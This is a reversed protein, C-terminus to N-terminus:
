PEVKEAVILFGSPITGAAITERVRYAGPVPADPALVPTESRGSVANRLKLVGRKVTVGGPLLGLLNFALFLAAKRPLQYYMRCRPFWRGVENLFEEGEFEHVHFPNTPVAGWRSHLLKNPTSCLFRGGPRLVRRCEALYARYDVVHEITEFSVVLDFQGSRFPLRTADCQLFRLNPGGYVMSAYRVQEKTIDAAIVSGAVRALLDSGYGSGCAIDLVHGGQALGAAFQYRALHDLVLREPARGPVLFEGTWAPAEILDL